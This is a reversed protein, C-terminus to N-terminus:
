AEVNANPNEDKQRRANLESQEFDCFQKVPTYELFRHNKTCVPGLYSYFILLLSIITGYTLEFDSFLM